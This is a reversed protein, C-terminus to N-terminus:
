VEGCRGKGEEVGGVCREEEGGCGLVSRWM